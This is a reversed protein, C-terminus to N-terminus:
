LGIVALFVSILGSFCGFVVLALQFPRGVSVRADTLAPAPAMRRGVAYCICAPISVAITILLVSYPDGTRALVAGTLFLVVIGGYVALLLRLAYLLGLLWRPGFVLPGSACRGDILGGGYFIALVVVALTVGWGLCVGISCLASVLTVFVLLTRLSFQFWRLKPKPVAPQPEPESM